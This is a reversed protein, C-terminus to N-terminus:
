CRPAIASSGSASRRSRAWRQAAPWRSSRSRRPKSYRGAWTWGPQYYHTDAPDIVAIDLDPCRALLSSATAIGAAGAGVIAVDHRHTPRMRQSAAALTDAAPNSRDTLKTNRM